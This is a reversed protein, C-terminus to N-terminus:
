DLHSASQDVAPLCNLMKGAPRFVVGPSDRQLQRQIDDFVQPSAFNPVTHTIEVPIVAIRQIGSKSIEIRALLARRGDERTQDFVLNGLSYFIWKGDRQEIPQIVHPHHGLVVDAGAERFIRAWNMQRGDALPFFETGWHVTVIVADARRKAEGIVRRVTEEEAVAPMPSEPRWILCELPLAVFGLLAITIGNRTIYHPQVAQELNEGAGVVLIGSEVLSRATELLADRGYDYAHNNALSATTIGAEALLNAYDPDGRFAYRKPLPVTERTLASELNILALDAGAFLDPFNAFPYAANKGRVAQRLVGRDLLVDGGAILTVIAEDGGAEAPM